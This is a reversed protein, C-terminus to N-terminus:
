VGGNMASTSQLGIALSFQTQNALKVNVKNTSVLEGSNQGAIRSHLDFGSIAGIEDVQLSKGNWPTPPAVGDTGDWASGYQPPAIGVITADIPVVKGGKLDAKTFRLALTSTGGAKMNDAEITGVLDTGKPLEMGNKLHVTDTLKAQFQQGPQIKKANIDQALVAEAPVMQAAQQEAAPSANNNFDASQAIVSKPCFLACSAVAISVVFIFRSKM